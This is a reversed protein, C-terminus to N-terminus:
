IASDEIVGLYGHCLYGMVHSVKGDDHLNKRKKLNNRKKLCGKEKEKVSEVGTERVKRELRMIGCVM